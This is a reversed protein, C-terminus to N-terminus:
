ADIGKSRALNMRDVCAQLSARQEPTIKSLDVGKFFSTMSKEIENMTLNLCLIKLWRPTIPNLGVVQLLKLKIKM